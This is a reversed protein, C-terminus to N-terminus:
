CVQLKFLPRVTRATIRTRIMPVGRRILTLVEAVPSALALPILFFRPSIAARKKAIEV